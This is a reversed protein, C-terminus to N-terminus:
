LFLHPTDFYIIFLEKERPCFIYAESDFLKRDDPIQTLVAWRMEKRVKQMHKECVTFGNQHVAVPLEHILGEARFTIHLM